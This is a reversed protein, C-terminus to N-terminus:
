KGDQEVKPVIHGYKDILKFAKEVNEKSEVLRYSGYWKGSDTKIRETEILLGDERLRGIVNTVRTTLLHGGTLASVEESALLANLTLVTSENRM